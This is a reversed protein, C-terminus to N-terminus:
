YGRAEHPSSAAPTNTSASSWVSWVHGTKGGGIKGNIGLMVVLFSFFDFSVSNSECKGDKGGSLEPEAAGAGATGKQGCQLVSPPTEREM